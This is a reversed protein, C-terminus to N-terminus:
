FIILSTKFTKLKVRVIVHYKSKLDNDPYFYKNKITMNYILKLSM